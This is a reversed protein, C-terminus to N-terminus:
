PSLTLSGRDLAIEYYGHPDWTLVAGGQVLTGGDVKVRLFQGTPFHAPLTWNWTRTAGSTTFALTSFMKQARWYAGIKVVTDTWVDPLGKAHSMSGTVNAIDVPAYWNATTPLITHILFIIWKGSSRATDTFSNFATATEGAAALHIPLNFADTTDNPAIMGGGVGRYLAFRSQAATDYGTDGFPSAGTWVQKQPYHQTIYSTCQDLEAGIDALAAGFSCGTLNAQCHHATHNGIEHGDAVAKAWTADYNAETSNGSSVYFTMPVGVSQLEAYHEIQSPQSDDFTFSAAGKFGAWSLVTLNGATGAPKPVGSTPPVPLSSRASAGADASAGGEDTTGGVGTAGVSGASGDTVSRGGAGAGAGAEMVASGSTGGGGSSAVGGTGSQAGANGGNGVAGGAGAISGM